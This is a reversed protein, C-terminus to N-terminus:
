GIRRYRIRSHVVRQADEYQRECIGFTLPSVLGCARESYRRDRRHTFRTFPVSEEHPLLTGSLDLTLSGSEKMHQRVAPVYAQTQGFPPIGGYEIVAGEGGNYAAIILDTFDGKVAGSDHHPRIYDAIHCLYRGESAIADYPNFPDAANPPEAKGARDLGSDTGFAKWTEPMFQSMGEAGGENVGDGISVAKENFGSEQEVIGAVLVPSVESCLSGAASVANTYQPPISGAAFTTQDGVETPCPEMTTTDGPASGYHTDATPMGGGVTTVHVHDFHHATYGHRDEMLSWHGTGDWYRQHWIVYEVNLAVTNQQLYLAVKDGLATGHASASDPIMIDVARGDPHDHAVDGTPRWGGITTIEPFM